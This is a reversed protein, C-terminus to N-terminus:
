GGLFFPHQARRALVCNDRGQFLARRRLPRSRLFLRRGEMVVNLPDSGFIAVRVASFGYKGLFSILQEIGRTAVNKFAKQISTTPPNRSWVELSDASQGGSPRLIH